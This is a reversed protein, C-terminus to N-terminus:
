LGYETITQDILPVPGLQALVNRVQVCRQTYATIETVAEVLTERPIHAPFFGPSSQRERLLTMGKLEVATLQAFVEYLPIAKSHLNM